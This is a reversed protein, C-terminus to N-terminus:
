RKKFFMLVLVGFILVLMLYNDTFKRHNVTYSNVTLTQSTSQYSQQITAKYYSQASIRPYGSTNNQYERFSGYLTITSNSTNILNGNVVVLYDVVDAGVYYTVGNITVTVVDDGM